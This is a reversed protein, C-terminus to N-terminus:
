LEGKGLMILIEHRRLGKQWEARKVAKEPVGETEEIRKRLRACFAEYRAIRAPASPNVLVEFGQTAAEGTQPVDSKKRNNGFLSLGM